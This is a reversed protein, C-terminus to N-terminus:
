MEDAEDQMMSMEMSRIKPRPFNRGQGYEKTETGIVKQNLSYALTTAKSKADKVAEEMLAKKHRQYTLKAIRFQTSTNIDLGTEGLSETFKTVEISNAPLLLEGYFSAIYNSPKKENYKRIARVNASSMTLLSDAYKMKKLTQKVAKLKREAEANAKETDNGYGEINIYIVVEDPAVEMTARGNVKILTPKLSQADVQSSILLLTVIIYKMANNKSHM